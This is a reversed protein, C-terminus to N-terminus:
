TPTIRHYISITYPLIHYIISHYALHHVKNLAENKKEIVSKDARLEDLEACTPHTCTQTYSSDFSNGKNAKNLEVEVEQARSKNKDIQAKMMDIVEMKARLEQHSM